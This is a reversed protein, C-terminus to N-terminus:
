GGLGLKAFETEPAWWVTGDVSVKLWVTSARSSGVRSSCAQILRVRSREGLKVVKRPGVAKPGEYLEVRSDLGRELITRAAGSDFQANMPPACSNRPVFRHAAEDYEYRIRMAFAGMWESVDLFRGEALAIRRTAPDIPNMVGEGYPALDLAERFEGERDFGYVRYTVGSNPPSPVMGFVLLVMPRGRGELLHASLGKAEVYEGPAQIRTSERGRELIGLSESQISWFELTTSRWFEKADLLRQYVATVTIRQGPGDGLVFPGFQEHFREIRQAAAVAPALWVLTAALLWV